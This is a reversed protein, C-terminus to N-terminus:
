DSQPEHGTRSRCRACLKSKSWIAALGTPCGVCGQKQAHRYGKRVDGIKTSAMQEDARLLLLQDIINM